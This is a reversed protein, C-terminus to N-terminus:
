LYMNAKRYTDTTKNEQCEGAYIRPSELRQGLSPYIWESPRKVLERPVTM